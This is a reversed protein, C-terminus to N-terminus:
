SFPNFICSCMHKDPAIIYNTISYVTGKVSLATTAVTATGHMNM